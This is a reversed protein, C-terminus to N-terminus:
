NKPTVTETKICNLQMKLVSTSISPPLDPGNCSIETSIIKSMRPHTINM